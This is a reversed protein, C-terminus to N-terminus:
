ERFEVGRGEVGVRAIDNMGLGPCTTAADCSWTGPSGPWRSSPPKGWGSGRRPHSSPIGALGTLYAQRLTQIRVGRSVDLLVVALDATSAATVMNRTFEEDRRAGGICADFGHQAITGLAESLFLFVGLMPLYTTDAM